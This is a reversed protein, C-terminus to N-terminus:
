LILILVLLHIKIVSFHMFLNKIAKACILGVQIFLAIGLRVFVVISM